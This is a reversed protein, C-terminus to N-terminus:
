HLSQLNQLDGFVFRHLFIRSVWALPKIGSPVDRKMHLPCVIACKIPQEVKESYVTIASIERAFTNIIYIHLM